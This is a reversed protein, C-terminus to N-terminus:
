IAINCSYNGSYVTITYRCFKIERPSYDLVIINAPACKQRDNTLIQDLISITSNPSITITKTGNLQPDAVLVPTEMLNKITINDCSCNETKKNSCQVNRIIELQTVRTEMQQVFYISGSKIERITGLFLDIIYIKRETDNNIRLISNIDTM